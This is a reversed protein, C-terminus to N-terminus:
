TVTASPGEGRMHNLQLSTAATEVAARVPSEQASRDGLPVDRVAAGQPDSGSFCFSGDPAPCTIDSELGQQKLWNAALPTPSKSASETNPIKAARRVSPLRIM